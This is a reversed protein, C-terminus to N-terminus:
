PGPELEKALRNFEKDWSQHDEERWKRQLQQLRRM